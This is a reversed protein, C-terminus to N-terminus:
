RGAVAMSIASLHRFPTDTLVGFSVGPTRIGFLGFFDSSQVGPVATKPSATQQVLNSRTCASVSLALAESCACFLREPLKLDSQRNLQM